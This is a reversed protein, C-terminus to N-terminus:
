EEQLCNYSQLKTLRHRKGPGGPLSDQNLKTAYTSTLLNCNFPYHTSYRRPKLATFLIQTDTEVDEKYTCIRHFRILQSKILGRYTHRPHYSTKYLLAHRDTEKFYVKTGLGKSNDKFNTFFAQTDLFKVKHQQINSKLTMQSHHNNLIVMFEESKALTHQGLSFIDNLYRLYLCPLKNCKEFATNEWDALYTLALLVTNEAWQVDWCKQFTSTMSRSIM